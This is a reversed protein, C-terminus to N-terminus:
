KQKENQVKSVSGQTDLNAEFELTPKFEHDETKVEWPSLNCAQAVMGLLIGKFM